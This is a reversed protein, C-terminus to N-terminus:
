APTLLLPPVIGDFSVTRELQSKALKFSISCAELLVIAQIDLFVFIFKDWPGNTYYLGSTKPADWVLLRSSRRRKNDHLTTLM